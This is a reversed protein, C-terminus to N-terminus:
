GDPPPQWYTGAIGVGVIDEVAKIDGIRYIIEFTDARSGAIVAITRGV